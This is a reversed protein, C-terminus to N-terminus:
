DSCSLAKVKKKDIHIETSSSASLFTAEVFQAFSIYNVGVMYEVLFWRSKGSEPTRVRVAAFPLRLLRLLAIDSKYV